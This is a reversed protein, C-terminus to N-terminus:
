VNGFSGGTDCPAMPFVEFPSLQGTEELIVAQATFM